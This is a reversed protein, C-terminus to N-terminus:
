GTNRGIFHSTEFVLNLQNTIDQFNNYIILVQRRHVRLQPPMFSTVPPFTFGGSIPINNPTKGSSQHAIEAEFRDMEEEMQKLKENGDTM